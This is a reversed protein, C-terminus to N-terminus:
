RSPSFASAPPISAAVRADIKGDSGLPPARGSVTSQLGAPPAAAAVAPRASKVPVAISPRTVSKKPPERSAVSYAPAASGEPLSSQHSPHVTRTWLQTEVCPVGPRGPIERGGTEDGPA